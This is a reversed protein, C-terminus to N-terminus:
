KEAPVTRWDLLHLAYNDLDLKRMGRDELEGEYEGYMATELLRGLPSTMAKEGRAKGRATALTPQELCSFDLREKGAKVAITVLQELGFTDGTIEARPTVITKGPPLRNDDLIGPEPFFATIGYGSDMFLLTVDITFDTPNTVRFAIIDGPRLIRGAADYPVPKGMRDNVDKFRLLEVQANVRGTYGEGAINMLSSAKSISGLTNKLKQALIEPQQTSSGIMFQPSEVDKQAFGSTPILRVQDNVVRILWDAEAATAVREIINTFQTDAALKALASEINDPGEKPPYTKVEPTEDVDKQQQVAIKMRLDGYNVFVVKCRSGPRLQEKGPATVGDFEAPKVLSTLPRLTTVEVHGLM